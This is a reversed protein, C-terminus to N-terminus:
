FRSEGEYFTKRIEHRNQLQCPIQMRDRDNLSVAQWKVKFSCKSRSADTNLFSIICEPYRLISVINKLLM